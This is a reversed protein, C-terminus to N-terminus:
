APWCLIKLDHVIASNKLVTMTAVKGWQSFWLQSKALKKNKKKEWFSLLSWNVAATFYEAEVLPSHATINQPNLNHLMVQLPREVLANLEKSVCLIKKKLSDCIPCQARQRYQCWHRADSQCMRLGSADLPSFNIITAYWFWFLKIIAACACVLCHSRKNLRWSVTSGSDVAAIWM